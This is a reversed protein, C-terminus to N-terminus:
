YNQRCLATFLAERPGAYRSYTPFTGFIVKETDYFEKLMIQYSSIIANATFDGAKKKGVVPHVLLGDGNIKKLAQMQIFEHSRHIPNRSHFAVVRSWGRNEFIKRSQLPTLEYKKHAHQRRNLLTVKGSIFYKGANLFKTVGPHKKDNTGFFLKSAKDLDPKFIESVEIVAINKNKEKLCLKTGSKIKDAEKKSVQLTIPMSWIAGCELKFSELVSWFNKSDLFGDIPSYAGLAILEADMAQEESIHLVQM